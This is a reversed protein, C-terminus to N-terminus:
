ETRLRFYRRSDEATSNTFYRLTGTGLNTQLTIWNPAVLNTATEVFYAHGVLSNYAFAFHDASVQRPNLIV